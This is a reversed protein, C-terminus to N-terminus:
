TLAIHFSPRIIFLEEGLTDDPKGALISPIPVPTDGSHQLTFPPM